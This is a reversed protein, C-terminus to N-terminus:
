CDDWARAAAIMECGCFGSGTVCRPWGRMIRAAHAAGRVCRTPNDRLSALQATIAGKVDEYNLVDEVAMKGEHRIAYGLDRDLRDILGQAGFAFM